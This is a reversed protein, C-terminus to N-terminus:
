PLCPKKARAIEVSCPASAAIRFAANNVPVTAGRESAGGVFICDAEWAIAHEVVRRASDGEFILTEASMGASCLRNRLRDAVQCAYTDASRGHQQKWAATFSGKGATLENLHRDVVTLIQIEARVPWARTSVAQIVAKDTPTGDAALIVRVNRGRSRRPARAIRVPCWATRAIRRAVSGLLLGECGSHGHAGVVLLDPQWVAAAGLIGGAPTDTNMEMEVRWRPFVTLLQSRAAEAIRRGPCESGRALAFYDLQAANSFRCGNEPHTNDHVFVALAELQEPLGARALDEIAEAAGASGDCAILVRRRGGSPRSAGPIRHIADGTVHDEAQM